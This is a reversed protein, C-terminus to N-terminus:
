ASTEAKLDTENVLDRRTGHGFEPLDLRHQVWFVWAAMLVFGTNRAVTMWGVKSSESDTSFCGCAINLGRQITVVAMAAFVFFLIGTILAASRRFGLNLALAFALVVELSAVFLATLNIMQDPLLDYRYLVQAFGNLDMIKVGGSYALIGALIWAMAVGSYKAFRSDSPQM